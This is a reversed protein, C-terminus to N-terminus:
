QNPQFVQPQNPLRPPQNQNDQIQITILNSSRPIAVPEKQQAIVAHPISVAPRTLNVSSAPMILQPPPVTIPPPRGVNVPPMVLPHPPPIIPTPPVKSHRHQVHAQLDRKSLYTRRCGNTLSCLWVSGLPCQEIRQVSDKCRPCNNDTKKACSFCFVHKCPIMRGYSRIPLSCTECVHIMPDRVKKGILHVQIDWDHSKDRHHSNSSQMNRGYRNEDMYNNPRWNREDKNTHKKYRDSGYSDKHRRKRQMHNDDM